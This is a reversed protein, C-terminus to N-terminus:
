VQRRSTILAALDEATAVPGFDSSVLSVGYDRHVLAIISLRSLSDWAEFGQLKSTSTIEDTELIEALQSFLKNM